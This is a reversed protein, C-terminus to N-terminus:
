KKWGNKEAFDKVNVVCRFQPKGNLLRDYAKPFDEFSFEEVMPYIKKDVCLKIMLKTVNRPGVNSGRITLEKEVIENASLTLNENNISPQGVQVFTGCIACTKLYDNIKNNIPLTNLVFDFKNQANKMQEEDTSLIIEKAGLKKILEEKEKSSTFATVEYNLKSLFQVAVHGLGGIGIVATKMGPKLYKFMPYYTTIGACLLPAGKSIDFNKPIKYFFEAPQQIQTAYGGWHEKSYTGREKVFPCVEENGNKCYKCENCVERITGFGVIEGKKFDKVDTGVQSVEAIIEHGPAIPYLVDGWGGTVKFIDSHCLGTYLVNARIEKPGIQPFKFPFKIMKEKDIFAWALADADKEECHTYLPHSYKKEEESM